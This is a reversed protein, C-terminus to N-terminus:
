AGNRAGVSVRLPYLAGESRRGKKGSDSGKALSPKKNLVLYAFIGSWVSFKVVPIMNIDSEEIGELIIGLIVLLSLWLFTKCPARATCSFVTSM